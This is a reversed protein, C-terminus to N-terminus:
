RSRDLAGMRKKGAIGAGVRRTRYGRALTKKEVEAPFEKLSM